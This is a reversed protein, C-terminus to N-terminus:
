SKRQKKYVSWGSNVSSKLVLRAGANEVSIYYSTGEDNALEVLDTIWYGDYNKKLSAQLTIPLQLSSINRTLAIMSGEADYYATVYQGNLAFNAKFYNANISWSVETASKFATNFSRLAAPAVSDDKTAFSSFGILSLAITLTLVLRKM